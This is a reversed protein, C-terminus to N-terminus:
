GAREEVPMWDGEQTERCDLLALGDAGLGLALAVVHVRERGHVGVVFLDVVARAKQSIGLRHLRQRLAIGVVVLRLDVVREGEVGRGRGGVLGVGVLEFARRDELRDGLALRLMRADRVVQDM